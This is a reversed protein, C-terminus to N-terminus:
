RKMMRMIAFATSIIEHIEEEYKELTNGDEIHNRELLDFIMLELSNMSVFDIM